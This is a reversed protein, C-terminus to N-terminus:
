GELWQDVMEALKAADHQGDAVQYPTAKYTKGGDVSYRVLSSAQTINCEVVLDGHRYPLRGERAKVKAYADEVAEQDGDGLGLGELAEGDCLVDLISQPDTAGDEIIAAIIEQATM